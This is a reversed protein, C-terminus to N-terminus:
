GFMEQIKKYRFDFIQEVKNKVFVRNAISGIFYYPVKYHLLDTMEVGNEVPKFHHQHHWFKYPGFRQEDIFFQKDAVHTIETM